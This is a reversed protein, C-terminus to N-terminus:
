CRKRYFWLSFVFSIPVTATDGSQQKATQRQRETGEYEVTLYLVVRWSSQAVRNFQIVTRLKPPDKLKAMAEMTLEM